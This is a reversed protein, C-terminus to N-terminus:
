PAVEKLVIGASAFEDKTPKRRFDCYECCMESYERPYTTSMKLEHPKGNLCDAKTPEYYFSISTTFVFNKRCNSCQHEHRVDEEYGQGDDHCVEQEADCYPCRMDNM